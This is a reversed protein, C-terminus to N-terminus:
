LFKSNSIRTKGLIKHIRCKFSGSYESNKAHLIINHAICAYIRAEWTNESLRNFNIKALWCLTKRGEKIHHTYGSQTTQTKVLIIKFPKRSRPGKGENNSGVSNSAGQNGGGVNQGVGDVPNQTTANEKVWKFCTCTEGDCRGFISQEKDRCHKYCNM